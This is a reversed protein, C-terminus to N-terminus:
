IKYNFYYKCLLMLIIYDFKKLNKYIKINIELIEKLM